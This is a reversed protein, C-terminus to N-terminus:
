SVEIGQESWYAPCGSFLSIFLSVPSLHCWIEFACLLAHGGGESRPVPTVSPQSDGQPQQAEDPGEELVEM